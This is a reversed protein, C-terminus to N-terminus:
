AQVIMKISTLPNRVEYAVGAALQGVAALQEARRVERERQQLMGVVQEVQRVLESAEDHLPDKSGDPRIFVVSPVEQSLIDSADQVRIRLQHITRSLGRALGYGLLLGALSGFVGVFVLGWGMWSLTRRHVAESEEIQRANYDRLARCR